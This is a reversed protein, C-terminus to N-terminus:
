FIVKFSSKIKGSKEAFFPSNTKFQNTVREIEVDEKSLSERSVENNSKLKSVRNSNLINFFAADFIVLAVLFVILTLTIQLKEKSIFSKM